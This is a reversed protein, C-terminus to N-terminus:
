GGAEGPAPRLLHVDTVPRKGLGARITRRVALRVAEKLEADDRRRRASLGEVAKRAASAVRDRMEVEAEGDLLGRLSVRPDALMAGDRDVVVTATAAGNYLLRRRDRLVPGDLPVVAQGDLVLRGSPVTGTVGAPGPALRVVAGNEAVVTEPVQCDRALAAHAMLHRVEGHVPVAIRPRVWQYMRTLEDRAPHGSVHVFHDNESIM